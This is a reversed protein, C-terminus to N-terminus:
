SPENAHKQKTNMEIEDDLTLGFRAFLESVDCGHMLMDDIVKDAEDSGLLNYLEASAYSKYTENDQKPIRRNRSM